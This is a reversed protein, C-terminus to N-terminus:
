VAMLNREYLRAFLQDWLRTEPAIQRYTTALDDPLFPTLLITPLGLDYRRSVTEELLEVEHRHEPRLGALVLLDSAALKVMTDRSVRTAIDFEAKAKGELQEEQPAITQLAVSVMYANLSFDRWPVFYYTLLTRYEVLRSQIFGGIRAGRSGGANFIVWGHGARVHQDLADFYHSLRTLLDADQLPVSEGIILKGTM